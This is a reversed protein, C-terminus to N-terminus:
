CLTLAEELAVTAAAVDYDGRMINSLWLTLCDVLVV